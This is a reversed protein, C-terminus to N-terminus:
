PPLLFFEFNSLSTSLLLPGNGLESHCCCQCQESMQTQSRKMSKVPMAKSYPKDIVLLALVLDICSPFHKIFAISQIPM